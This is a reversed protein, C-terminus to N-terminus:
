LHLTASPKRSSFKQVNSFWTQLRKQVEFTRELEWRAKTGSRNKETWYNFFKDLEARVIEDTLGFRDSLTRLFSLYRESSRDISFFDGATQSPTPSSTEGSDIDGNPSINKNEKKNKNKYYHGTATRNSDSEQGSVQYQNWNKIYILRFHSDTQQETATDNATRKINREITAESLGTELALKKRTTIVTGAPITIKKGRFIIEKPETTASLLLHVWFAVFNPDGYHQSDKFQRHLKIWGNQM